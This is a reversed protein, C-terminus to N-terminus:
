GLGTTRRVTEIGVIEIHPTGDTERALKVAAGVMFGESMVYSGEPMVQLPVARSSNHLVVDRGERVLSYGGEYYGLHPAVVSFSVPKAKSGLTRLDDLASAETALVKEPVGVNLGFRESLVLNLVYTYFWIGAPGATMNNLVTLGLDHQPLFGVFATFGDFAGNHWVLSSGGKYEERIWGM